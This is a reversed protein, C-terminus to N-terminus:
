NIAPLLGYDKGYEMMQDIFVKPYEIKVDIIKGDMDHICIMTQANNLVIAKEEESKKASMSGINATFRADIEGIIIGVIAAIVGYIIANLTSIM